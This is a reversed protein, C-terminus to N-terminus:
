CRCYSYKCYLHWFRKRRGKSAGGMNNYVDVNEMKLNSEM